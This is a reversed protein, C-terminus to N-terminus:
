RTWSLWKTMLKKVLPTLRTRNYLAGADGVAQHAQGDANLVARIQNAIQLLRQRVSGAPLGPAARAARGDRREPLLARPRGLRLRVSVTLIRINGLGPM